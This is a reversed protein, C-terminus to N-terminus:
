PRSVELSSRFSFLDVNDMHFKLRIRKGRVKRIACADGAWTQQLRIGDGRLPDAEDRTLGPVPQLDETLVETRLSGAGGGGLVSANVQLTGGPWRFPKTVVSGPLRNARLSCFGDARLQAVGIGRGFTLHRNGHMAAPEEARALPLAFLAAAASLTMLGTMARM